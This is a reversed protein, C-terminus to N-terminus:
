YKATLSISLLSIIVIFGQRTQSNLSEKMAEFRMMLKWNLEFVEIHLLKVQITPRKVLSPRREADVEEEVDTWLGTYRLALWPFNLMTMRATMPFTYSMKRCFRVQDTQPVM